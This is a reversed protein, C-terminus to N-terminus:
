VVGREREDEVRWKEWGGNKEYERPKRGQDEESRGETKMYTVAARIYDQLVETNYSHQICLVEESHPLSPSTSTNM